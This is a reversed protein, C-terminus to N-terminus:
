PAARVRELVEWTFPVAGSGPETRVTRFAGDPLAPYYTDGAFERHVTTRYIRDVLPLTERYLEGGGIVLAEEGWIAAQAKAAALAAAVSPVVIVGDPAAYDRQRTVVITLRGPLPRGISEYTKRGMILPHGMTLRKFLKLDEPVHWPLGGGAGIVGNAATAVV